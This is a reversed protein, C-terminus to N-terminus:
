EPTNTKASPSKLVSYSIIGNRYNAGRDTWYKEPNEFKEIENDPDGHYSYMDRLIDLPPVFGGTFCLKDYYWEAPIREDAIIGIDAQFHPMKYTYVRVKVQGGLNFERDAATLNEAWFNAIRPGYALDFYNGWGHPAKGGIGVLSQLGIATPLMKETYLKETSM